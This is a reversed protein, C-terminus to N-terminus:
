CPFPHFNKPFGILYFLKAKRLCIVIDTTSAGKLYFLSPEQAQRQHLLM